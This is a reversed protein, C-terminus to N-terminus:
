PRYVFVFDPTFRKRFHGCFVEFQFNLNRLLEIQPPPKVARMIWLKIFSTTYFPVLFITISLISHKFFSNCSRRSGFIAVFIKDRQLVQARGFM